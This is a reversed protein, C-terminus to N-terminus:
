PLQESAPKAWKLSRTEYTKAVALIAGYLLSYECLEEPKKPCNDGLMLELAGSLFAAENINRDPSIKPRKSTIEANTRRVAVLGSAIYHMAEAESFAVHNKPKDAM